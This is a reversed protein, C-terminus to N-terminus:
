TNSSASPTPTAGPEESPLDLGPTPEPTPPVVEGITLSQIIVDNKPRGDTTPKGEGDFAGDKAITDVIDLGRTVTGFKSYQRDLYVDKYVIFFQSGNTGPGVNWTAVTGRGYFAKGANPDPTADPSPSPDPDTIVPTNEDVYQYTPGGSGTDGPDGCQLLADTLRHCKTNDFFNRTALYAFSASTCPASKLDLTTEILGQQLTINMARTGAIPVDTTSPTGVDKLGGGDPNPRPTWLCVPQAEPTPESDFAGAFWFAGLTVLVVLVGAVGAQVQRRRREAQAKRVMQREYKARALQRQRSKSPAVTSGGM